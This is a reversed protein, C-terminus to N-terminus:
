VLRALSHGRMTSAMSSKLGVIRISTLVTRLRNLWATTSAIARWL